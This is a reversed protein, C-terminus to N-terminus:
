PRVWGMAFCAALLGVLMVGVILLGAAVSDIWRPRPPPPIVVLRPAVPLGARELPPPPDTTRVVRLAPRTM